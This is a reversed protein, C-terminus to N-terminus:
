INSKFKNGFYIQIHVKKLNLLNKYRLSFDITEYPSNLNLLAYCKIVYVKKMEMQLVHEVRLKESIKFIMRM